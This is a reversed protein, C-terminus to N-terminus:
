CYFNAFGLFQQLQKRTTPRPWEEVAQIKKPDAKVQGSEIIYGLFSVLPIHFECKEAKVFLQNEWLRQLVLRIHHIHEEERHNGSLILSLPPTCHTVQVLLKRDLAWAEQPTNLPEWPIGAQSAIDDDLLNGEGGFDVLAARSLTQQQHNVIVTSGSEKLSAAERQRRRGSRPENRASKRNSKSTSLKFSRGYTAIGVLLKRGSVGKNRFYKMVFEINFHAFDGEEDKRRHLPTNHGAFSNWPGNFDFTMVSIFDLHKAIVPVEYSNDIYQKGAAVAASLLLTPKRTEEAEIRFAAKLEEVLRSYLEKNEPPNGPAGPYQWALELGDFHHHRLFNVVSNIFTRRTAKTSVMRTFSVSGFNWGGIALLTKLNKNRKKHGNFTKYFDVDNKETAVVKNEEDIAAFAYILHTCAFPNIDEPLYRAFGSRYQAWNTFYCSLIYTSGLQLQSLIFIGAFLKLIMEM